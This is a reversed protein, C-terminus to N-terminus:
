LGLYNITANCGNRWGTGWAADASAQNAHGQINIIQSATWDWFVGNGMIEVSTPINISTINPCYMFAYSDIYSVTTPITIGTLNRNNDFVEERIFTVGSPITIHGKASPYALLSTKEKNYLLGGESSYNLNGQAVMISTLSTCAYFARSSIDTVSTPINISTLSTCAYFTYSSIYTVSTPINVSTINTNHFASSNPNDNRSGIEM